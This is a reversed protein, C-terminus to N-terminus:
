DLLPCWDVIRWRRKLYNASCGCETTGLSLWFSELNCEDNAGSGECRLLIVPCRWTWPRRFFIIWCMNRHVLWSVKYSCIAIWAVKGPSIGSKQFVLGFKCFLRWRSSIDEVITLKAKIEKHTYFGVLTLNTILCTEEIDLIFSMDIFVKCLCLKGILFLCGEYCKRRM